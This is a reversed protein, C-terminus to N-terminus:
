ISIVQSLVLQNQLAPDASLRQRGDRPQLVIFRHRTVLAELGEVEGIPDAPEGDACGRGLVAPFVRALGLVGDPGVLDIM